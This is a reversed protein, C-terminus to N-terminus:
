NKKLTSGPQTSRPSVIPVFLKAPASVEIDGRTVFASISRVPSPSRPDTARDPVYSVMMQGEIQQWVLQPLRTPDDEPAVMFLKGGSDRTAEVMKPPAQGLQEAYNRLERRRGLYSPSQIVNIVGNMGFAEKRISEELYRSLNVIHLTVGSEHLLQAARGYTSDRGADDVGDTVVVVMRHGLKGALLDTVSYAVSDWLQGDLGSQFKEEVAAEAVRSDQTWPQILDIGDSYQVLAVHDDEGLAYLLDYVLQRHVALQKVPGIQRGVDLVVVLWLPWREIATARQRVGNEIIGLDTLSVNPVRGGSRNVITVPVWRPASPVMAASTGAAVNIRDVAHAGVSGPVTGTAGAPRTSPAVPGATRPPAAAPKALPAGAPKAGPALASAPTGRNAGANKQTPVPTQSWGAIPAFALLALVGCVLLRRFLM